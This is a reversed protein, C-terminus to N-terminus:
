ATKALLAEGEGIYHSAGVSRWFDLARQLEEDAEVRRGSKILADAARLRSYAEEPRAGIEAFTDAADVLRGSVLGEAAQIWPTSINRRSLAKLFREGRGLASSAFALEPGWSSRMMAGSASWLRLLEDARERAEETRGAALLVRANFALAPFLMQPDNAVRCFDLEKAADDWAGALDGRALRLLGRLGRYAPDMWHPAGGESEAIRESAIRLAQDWAGEWYLDVAHEGALWRIAGAHGRREADRRAEDFLERSRRLDGYERLCEAYNGHARGPNRNTRGALAIARELDDFGEWDGRNARATGVNTLAEVLIDDRGLEEAMQIAQQGIRIAEDARDAVMQRGALRTLVWAKSASPPADELLAEAHEDREATLDNRGKRWFLSGLVTEADAAAARDGVALLGGVAAELEEFGEEASDFRARGARLLLYPREADDPWLELAAGYFGAAATNAGLAVARDGADRLVLRAREALGEGDQGAARAFELASVYHHALMEAHDEPRGLSAIWEAALRHKEARAARPIQGYAVDRVLLHRFAYETEEAVSSHRERRVFEKRGLTHLREEATRLDLGAIAAASGLWFVKGVVAADQLLAKEEPPLADLRAAIIGQVSEPLALAGDADGTGRGSIMSAFEEAYLPNGGARELLSAQTEAPLVARELLAHVLRATEEDSLPALSLTTANPKGGGWGPRRALLEPRASCVILIPVGSAWDVLHDLFDLLGDDAFHLDEFVLVLPGTEALAEFFRRWAAFAESGEDGSLERGGALGVLPRLHTGLWGAETPDSILEGVVRDLKEAALEPPDTELIGAQAKVMEGLAWYTVGDGYPLSRGQRWYILEPDREVTQFLEWILRSKGIGPVGVLTVLQPEREHRVRALASVLVDLEHKRGVLPARVAPRVDVGFRARAQVAEWAAVPESKGRAEVASRERYDIVRETARYTTEDVLIGNAEAGSQLRSATNVVDGSAMGEGESPRAGLSVLAEGTTIGIRVQLDSEETAWERIGLAARVAREPDDEHATPAGFLAMVADGIFKEVTGGFRVLERRVREHYASLLARVDEPDTGEARATSGVLDCFLVTVVKREEREATPTVTLAAGCESCFKAGERNESGCNSCNM